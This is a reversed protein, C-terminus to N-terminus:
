GRSHIYKRIGTSSHILASDMFLYHGKMEPCKDMEDLAAKLLSLYHGTVTGTNYADTERGIRRKKICNPVRLGVDILVAVFIVGLISTTNAKTTSM